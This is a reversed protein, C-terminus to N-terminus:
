VGYGVYAGVGVAIIMVGLRAIELVESVILVAADPDGM